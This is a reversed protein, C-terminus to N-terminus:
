KGKVPYIHTGNFEFNFSVVERGADTIAKKLKSKKHPPHFFLIYGGGGAGLLRGGYAGNRLGLEYLNDIESNTVIKNLKKKNEWSEHLMKGITELDNTLLCDKIKSALIKLENLKVVAETENESFSKEQVAHLDSSYHSGGAYCLTLCENLEHVVDPKLRLPYIITKEPNFEMFNFGGSVAAYQDQWGGKIKLEDREAKYAIEAIKYDDYNSNQLHSLLSVVLVAMSASSGLGRGPPIDNHIYLEFGFDPKMINVIAKILDFKGDYNIKKSDFIDEEGTDSNIIVKSDARRVMSAHCYKDITASMVVGGHKEFFYPLDTGGGAFSIRLPAKGRVVPFNETKVKETRFEVAKVVNEEDVIPLRQIGTLLLEQIKTEDDSTKAKVPDRVMVKELSDDLKGGRLLFRHIIRETVVGLLRDKEDVVLIIDMGSRTMKRMADALTHNQSMFLTKLADERFKKYTEPRSIDIFYGEHIFGSLLGENVLRPFLDKELSINKDVEIYNLVEPEVIYVGANILEEKGALNPNKEIFNVIKDASVEVKGYHEPENTKTLSATILGKNRKHFELMEKIDVQCYSDGNLVLFTENLYKQAKKLAGGTGLPSDEESYTVDLAWRLGSGFYSKIKDSMHHVALIIETIGQEKLFLFQHELFPKGLVPAMPKPVDKLEGHLRNGFGGALIIAKM